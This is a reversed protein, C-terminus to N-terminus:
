SSADGIRHSAAISCDNKKISTRDEKRTKIHAMLNGREKNRAFLLSELICPIGHLAINLIFYARRSAIFDGEMDAFGHLSSTKIETM